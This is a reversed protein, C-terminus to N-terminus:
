VNQDELTISGQKRGFCNPVSHVGANRVPLDMFCELPVTPYVRQNNSHTRKKRRCNWVYISVTLCAVALESSIINAGVLLSRRLHRHFRENKQAGEGPLISTLCGAHIHKPLDGIAKITKSNLM